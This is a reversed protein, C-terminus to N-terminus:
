VGLNIVPNIKQVVISPILITDPIEKAYIIVVGDDTNSVPAFNGSIAQPTDFVVHAFHQMTVGSVPISAEYAYGADAITDDETETWDDQMVYIATHATPVTDGVKTDVESKTYWDNMEPNAHKGDTRIHWKSGDYYCEWWGVPIDYNATSIEAGNLWLPKAGKSNWNLTVNSKATNASAFCIYLRLGEALATYPTFGTASKAANSGSNSCYGQYYNTNSGFARHLAGYSYYVTKYVFPATMAKIFYNSGTLIASNYDCLPHWSDNEGIRIRVNRYTSTAVKTDLCFFYVGGEVWEVGADENITINTYGYSTSYPSVGKTSDTTLTFMDETIGFATQAPIITTDPLAGVQAATVNHPNNKDAIHTRAVADKVDYGNIKSVDAM